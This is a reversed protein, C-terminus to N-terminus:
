PDIAWSNLAAFLGKELQLLAPEPSTLTTM